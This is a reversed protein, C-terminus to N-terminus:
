PVTQFSFLVAELLLIYPNGKDKERLLAIMRDVAKTFNETLAPMPQEAVALYRLVPVLHDPLEGEPDIDLEAMARNLQAMFEGRQYSEGWIQFGVYPAAAPSLDLTRTSLEEWESLSLADVKKVFAALKSQAPGKGTRALGVELLEILGPHPYRFAEALLIQIDM